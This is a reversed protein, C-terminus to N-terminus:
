TVMAVQGSGLVCCQVDKWHRNIQVCLVVKVILLLHGLGCESSSNTSSGEFATGACWFQLSTQDVVPASFSHM